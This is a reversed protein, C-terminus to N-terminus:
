GSTGAGRAMLRLVLAMRALEIRMAVKVLAYRVPYPLLRQAIGRLGYAYVADVERRDAYRLARQDILQASAYAYRRKALGVQGDRILRTIPAMHRDWFGDWEARPTRAVVLPAVQYYLAVAQRDRDGTMHQDRLQRALQLPESDDAMGKADVVATTLFCGPTPSPPPPPPPEPPDPPEPTNPPTPPVVPDPIEPADPPPPDIPDDPPIPLADDADHHNTM